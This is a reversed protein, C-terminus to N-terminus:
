EERYDIATSLSANRPNPLVQLGTRQGAEWLQRDFTVLTIPVQLMEQWLFAAALHVSDYGRLKQEWALTEARAILLDSVTIEVIKSWDERYQNKLEQAQESSLYGSRVARSLASAMEPRTLVSSGIFEASTLWEKVDESGSERVYRKLLASTDLYIIL